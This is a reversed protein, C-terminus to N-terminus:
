HSRRLVLEDPSAPFWTQMEGAERHCWAFYPILTVPCTPGVKVEAIGKQAHCGTTALAPMKVGCVDVSKETFTANTPLVIDLARGGNDVGEACWVIPGREVALRGRDAEVRVDAKIRKVPMDMDVEVVDGNKWFRDISCYGKKPTFAFPEGNVKVKFNSPPSPETQAYLGSPM